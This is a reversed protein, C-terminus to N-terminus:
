KKPFLSKAPAAGSGATPRQVPKGGTGGAAAGKAKNITKGTNKEAWSDWFKAEEAGNLAEASTMKTETHFVKNTSNVERTEGSAVWKGTGDDVNKDEITKLIGLSIEHGILGTLMDVKTPLEKKADYDYLNIVKEETEQASLPEGSTMLCIDNIVSFGPLPVKKNDPSTFFNEGKKNTIYITERYESGSLDVIISVSIAGGKSKGAYAAKIKGTYIGSEKVSFGGLRDEQQEMGDTTMTNFM